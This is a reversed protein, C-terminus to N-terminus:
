PKSRTVIPHSNTPSPLLTSSTSTSPVCSSSGSTSIPSISPPEPVCSISSSLLSLPLFDNHASSSPSPIDFSVNDTSSAPSSSTASFWNLVDHSM